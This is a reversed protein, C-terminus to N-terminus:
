ECELVNLRLYEKYLLDLDKGKIRFQSRAKTKWNGQELFLKSAPDYYAIGQELASLFRSFSSEIGLEILPSYKYYYEGNIDKRESHVFCTMAHKKQWHKLIKPFSWYAVTKGKEDVLGVHGDKSTFSGSKYGHIVLRLKTLHHPKKDSVRHVGGFNLRNKKGSRDPYGFIRIFEAIGNEKYYGGDPEPTFLTVPRGQSHQKVEWGMYDPGAISNARIGLETELTVGGGNRAKYPVVEGEKNFKKSKIWGKLSILKMAKTIEKKSNEFSQKQRGKLLLNINSEFFVETKYNDFNKKLFTDFEKDIFDVYGFSEGATNFSLVLFRNELRKGIINRPSDKCGKLFGSFRSEPYQPYFIVKAHPALHTGSETIWYFNLLNRFIYESAKKKKSKQEVLESSLFPLYRLSAEGRLYVQNKSNDNPSLKKILVKTCNKTVLEELVTKINM